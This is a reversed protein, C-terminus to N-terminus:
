NANTRASKRQLSFVWKSLNPSWVVRIDNPNCFRYKYYLRYAGLESSCFFYVVDSHIEVQVSEGAYERAMRELSAQNAPSVASEETNATIQTM